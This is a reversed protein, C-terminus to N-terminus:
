FLQRQGVPTAVSRLHPYHKILGEPARIPGETLHAQLEIANAIAQGSFHNNTIVYVDEHQHALEQAQGALQAIEDPSYLYDYRADRGVGRKFWTERNRGHLRLYGLSSIPPFMRPPHDPAAPMDVNLLAVDRQKLWDLGKPVFWSKHRLEVAVPVDGWSEAIRDLREANAKNAHYHAPFQVLLAGFKGSELLPQIGERFAATRQYHRESDQPAAHTFEQHLKALFRFEPHPDVLQLWRTANKAEPMAYFSSNVEICDFFQALYPLAHFGKPKPRPYVIGEWDPYSWGAPGVRIM